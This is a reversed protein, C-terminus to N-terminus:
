SAVADKLAKGVRFRVAKKAPIELPEGTRPHRGTRAAKEVVDFSGFGILQVKDGRALAEMIAEGIADLAAASDKKTLSTKQSIADVLDTKTM